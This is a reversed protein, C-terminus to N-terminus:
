FALSCPFPFYLICFVFYRELQDCSKSLTKVVQFYQCPHSFDLVLYIQCIRGIVKAKKVPEEKIEDMEDSSM